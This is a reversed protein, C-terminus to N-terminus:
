AHPNSEVGLDAGGGREGSQQLLSAVEHEAQIGEDLVAEFVVGFDEALPFGGAVDGGSWAAAVFRGRRGLWGCWRRTSSHATSPPHTLLQHAQM